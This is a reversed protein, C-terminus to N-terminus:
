APPSPAEPPRRASHRADALAVALLVAAAAVAAVLPGTFALPVALAVLAAIAVVRRRSLRNFVVRELRIRGYLFLAPGGLVVASWVPHGTELPHEQVIEQGIATAVIGLVMVIHAVGATRGLMVRDPVADLADALLEGSRHYYVQWLLITSVYATVLGLTRATTVPQNTYTIGVALVTEGLAILLLQRYREPLHRGREVAWASVSPRPLGRVPWGLRAGFLDVTIATAWLAVRQEEKVLAGGVWLVATAACWIVSRTYLARVPDGVPLTPILLLPRGVQLLVYPLAFAMGRGFFAYPLSTAMILMGFASALVMLQITRQGPDFRSTIHSTTTWLWLLPLALVLTYLLSAWRTVIDDSALSPVIRSVVGNLAFVLVLDFFLELYNAQGASERGGPVGGGRPHGM